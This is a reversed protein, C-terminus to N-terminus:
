LSSAGFAAHLSIIERMTVITPTSSTVIETRSPHIAGLLGGVAVEVTRTRSRLPVTSHPVSVASRAPRTARLGGLLSDVTRMLSTTLMVGTVAQEHDHPSICHTQREKKRQM